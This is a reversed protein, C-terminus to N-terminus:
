KIINPLIKNSDKNKITNNRKNEKKMKNKNVIVNAYANSETNLIPNFNNNDFHNMNYMDNIRKKNENKNKFSFGRKIGKDNYQTKSMIDNAETMIINNKNDISGFKKSKRRFNTVTKEMLNLKNLKNRKKSQYNQKIKEHTLKIFEKIQKVIENKSLKPNIKTLQEFRLEIDIVNVYIENLNKRLKNCETILITNEKQIRRFGKERVQVLEDIKEKEYKLKEEGKNRMVLDFNHAIGDKDTQEKLKQSFYQYNILEIDIPNTFYKDYFKKFGMAIFTAKKGRLPMKEDEEQYKMLFNELDEKLQSLKREIFNKQDHVEYNLLLSTKLQSQKNELEQNSKNIQAIIKNYEDTLKSKQSELFACQGELPTKEMELSTMRHELVFRIQELHKNKLELDKLKKDIKVLNKETELLQEQFTITRQTANIISQKIDVNKEILKDSEKVKEELKKKHQLELLRAQKLQEEKDIILKNNIEKMKKMKDELESVLKKYDEVIKASADDYESGQNVLILLSKQTDSKLKEYKIDYEQAKKSFYQTQTDAESDCETRIQTKIDDLEKKLRSIENEYLSLKADHKKKVEDYEQKLEELEKKTEEIIEKKSKSILNNLKEYRIREIEVNEKINNEMMKVEAKNTRKIDELEESMLQKIKEMGKCLINYKKERINIEEIDIAYIDYPEILLEIQPKMSKSFYQFPKYDYEKFIAINSIFINKNNTLTIISSYNQFNILESVIGEDINLSHILSNNLNIDTNIKSLSLDLDYDEKEIRDYSIFDNLPWKYIHITGKNDGGLLVQLENILKISTLNCNNIEIIKRETKNMDPILYMIKNEINLTIAIELKQDYDFYDYHKNGSNHKFILRFFKNYVNPYKNEEYYELLGRRDSFINLLIGMIYSNEMLCFLYKDEDYFKMIKVKSILNEFCHITHYKVSDVIYICYSKPKKPNRNLGCICLFNGRTSWKVTSDAVDLECYLHILDKMKGYIHLKDKFSVAFLNNTNNSSFSFIKQPFYYKITYENKILDFCNLYNRSDIFYIVQMNESYDLFKIEHNDFYNNFLDYDYKISHIVESKDKEFVKKLRYLSINTNESKIFENEYTELIVIIDNTTKLMAFGFIKKINKAFRIVHCDAVNWRKFEAETENDSIKKSWDIKYFLSCGDNEYLIFLLNDNILEFFKVKNTKNLKDNIELKNKPIYLRDFVNESINSVVKNDENENKKDNNKKSIDLIGKTFINKLNKRIPIINALSYIENLKSDINKINLINFNQELAEIDENDVLNQYNQINLDYINQFSYCTNLEHILQFSDFIYFIHEITGVILLFSKKQFFQAKIFKHEKEQKSNLFRQQHEKLNGENIFVNWLRLYGVGCVVLEITNKPNYACYILEEPISEQSIFKGSSYKIFSIRSNSIYNNKVKTKKQSLVVCYNTNNLITCFNIKWFAETSKITFSDKIEDNNNINNKGQSFPRITTVYFLDENLSYEGICIVKDKLENRVFNFNTQTHFKISSLALEFKNKQAKYTGVSLYTIM